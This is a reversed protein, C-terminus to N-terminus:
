GVAPRGSTPPAIVPPTESPTKHPGAACRTSSSVVSATPVVEVHIYHYPASGRGMALTRAEAFFEIRQLSDAVDGGDLVEQRGELTAELAGTFEEVGFPV